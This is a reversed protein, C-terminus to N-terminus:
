KRLLSKVYNKAQVLRDSINDKLKPVVIPVVFVIFWLCNYYDGMLFSRIVLLIVGIIISFLLLLVLLNIINNKNSKNKFNIDKKKILQEAKESFRNYREELEEYSNINTKYIDDRYLVSYDDQIKLDVNKYNSIDLDVLFEECFIKLLKNRCKMSIFGAENLYIKLKNNIKTLKEENM